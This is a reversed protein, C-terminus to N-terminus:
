SERASVVNLDSAQALERLELDATAYNSLKVRTLKESSVYMVVMVVVVVLVLSM